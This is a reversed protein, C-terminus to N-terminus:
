WGTVVTEIGNEGRGLVRVCGVRKKKVMGHVEEGSFVDSWKGVGTVKEEGGTEEGVVVIGLFEAGDPGEWRGGTVDDM